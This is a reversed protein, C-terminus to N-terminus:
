VGTWEWRGGEQPAKAGDDIWGEKGGKLRELSASKRGEVGRYNQSNKIGGGWGEMEAIAEYRRERMMVRRGENKVIQGEEMSRSGRGEM